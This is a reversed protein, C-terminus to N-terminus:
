SMSANRAQAYWRLDCYASPEPSMAATPAYQSRIAIVQRLGQEDLLADRGFGETPHVFAAYADAAPLDALGLQSETALLTEVAGRSAPAYIWRLAALVASIYRTVIESHANVWDRDGALAQSAYAPYAETSRALRACGARDAIADFPTYLVTAAFDGALLGHIRVSTGGAQVFTYDQDLTLGAHELMNRLALAFGSSPNDVGVQRGRLEGATSIGPQAYVSLPGNSGGMLMVVHPASAPDCGFAEPRTDFNVVNDPATHLLDYEGRALSALQQASSNTYSLAIDLGYAHFYGQRHAVILPLNQLGQFSCVRVSSLTAERNGQM